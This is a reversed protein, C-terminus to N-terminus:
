LNLQWLQFNLGAAFGVWLLYPLFLAGAIRAIRWFLITTVIVASLLVVIEAFALGPQHLGFFILSWAANLILQLVFLCLPVSAARFGSQGWVLWASIAMLIYLATWVPPFVWDPPTWLPKRLNEYWQGPPFSAGICAASFTVLIFLILVISAKM